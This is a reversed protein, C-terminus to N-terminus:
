TAMQRVMPISTMMCPCLVSLMYDGFKEEKTRPGAASATVSMLASSAMAAAVVASLIARNKKFQM